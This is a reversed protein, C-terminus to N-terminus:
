VTNMYGNGDSIHLFFKGINSTYSIPNYPDGGQGAWWQNTQTDEVTGPPAFQAILYDRYQAKSWSSPGTYNVSYVIHTSTYYDVSLLYANASDTVWAVTTEPQGSPASGTQADGLLQRGYKGYFDSISGGLHPTGHTSVIASSDGKTPKPTPGTTPTNRVAVTPTDSPIAVITTPASATTGNNANAATAIAGIIGCLFLLAVVFCGVGIIKARKTLPKKPPKGGQQVPQQYQQQPYMGPQQQPWQPGSPQQYGMNPQLPQSPQQGQWQPPYQGWQGSQNPPVGWPQQSSPQPQNGQWPQQWNPPQDNNPPYQSM